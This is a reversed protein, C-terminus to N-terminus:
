SKCKNALKLNNQNSSSNTLIKYIKHIFKKSIMEKIEEKTFEELCKFKPCKKDFIGQEIKGEYYYKGCM